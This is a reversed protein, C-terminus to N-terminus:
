RTHSGLLDSLIVAVANLWKACVTVILEALGTGQPYKSAM